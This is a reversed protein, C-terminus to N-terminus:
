GGSYLGEYLGSSDDLAGAGSDSVTGAGSGDGFVFGGVPLTAADM